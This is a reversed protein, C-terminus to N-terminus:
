ISTELRTRLNRTQWKRRRSSVRSNRPRPRTVPLAQKFKGRIWWGVYAGLALAVLASAIVEAGSRIMTVIYQYIEVPSM